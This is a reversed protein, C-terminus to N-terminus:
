DASKLGSLRPSESFVSSFGIQHANQDITFIRLYKECIKSFLKAIKIFSM